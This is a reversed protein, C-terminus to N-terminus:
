KPRRLRFLEGSVHESMQLFLQVQAFRLHRLDFRQDFLRSSVQLDDSAVGQSLNQITERLRMFLDGGHERRLLFSLEVLHLGLVAFADMLMMVKEVRVPRRRLNLRLEATRDSVVVCLGM